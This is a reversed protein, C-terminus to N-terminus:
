LGGLHYVTGWDQYVSFYAERTGLVYVVSWTTGEQAVDRLIRMGAEWDVNGSASELSESMSRYRWCRERLSADPVNYVPKTTVVQWSGDARVQRWQDQAYELVASTGSSDAVYFHGNLSNKDLDFPVLRQVLSAAEEVTRAEDLIRRILFTVFVPEEGTEATVTTQKVGTVAVALGHENVGDMAYFPALLLRAGLEGSKVNELDMNFPFGLDIARCFSISSYGNPPRYLSVVISGVNQNDWNRGMVVSDGGGASFASCYRWTQTIMPNDIARQNERRFLEERDGYHTLLYVADPCLGATGQVKLLSQLTRTTDSGSDPSEAFELHTIANQAAGAASLALSLIISLFIPRKTQDDRLM